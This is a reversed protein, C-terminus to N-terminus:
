PYVKMPILSDSYHERISSGSNLHRFFEVWQSDSWVHMEKLWVGHNLDEASLAYLLGVSGFRCAGYCNTRTVKVRNEGADLGEAGLLERLREAKDNGQNERCRPGDCVLFHYRYWMMPKSPDKHKPKCACGEEVPSGMANVKTHAM